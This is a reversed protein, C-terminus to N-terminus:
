NGKKAKDSSKPNTFTKQRTNKIEEGLQRSPLDQTDSFGPLLKDKQYDELRRTFSDTHDMESYVPVTNSSRPDVGMSVIINTRFNKVGDGSVSMEHSIAEIHYVIGDLELNDGICIPEQIGVCQISGNMKLHGQFLWDGVLHAWEKGRLQRSGGTPYDYNCNVIYPKMGSRKIDKEDAVYNGTQIQTAQNFDANPAQSRTFVQVFNIRGSENRGLNISTILSPSVKWRPLDLFKTYKKSNADVPKYHQTNFPKQRLVFSPYVCNDAGVRYCVYMDNLIPNAYNQLLSWVSVSSFDQPAIQRQGDLEESTIFFNASDESRGIFFSTFGDSPNKSKSIGGTWVGLYYNNIDAATQAKAKNVLKGLGPPMMYRYTQSIPTDPRLQTQLGTGITTNIITKILYGINNTERKVLLDSWYKDFASMFFIPNAKNAADLIAPNFYLISNFENFGIGAISFGYQKSGDGGTALISKVETIRFLGKFGDEYRNIHQGNLARARIEMAKTEWDVMNVAVFDGPHIATLYNIDGAKLICSFSPSPNTKTYQVSVQVADSVVVMTNRVTESSELTYNQTDRNEWRVFSLVYAPSTQHSDQTSPNIEKTYAM